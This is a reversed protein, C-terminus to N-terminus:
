DRFVVTKREPSRAITSIFFVARALGDVIDPRESAPQSAALGGV